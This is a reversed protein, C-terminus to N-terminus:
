RFSVPELFFFPFNVYFYVMFYLRTYSGPFAKRLTVGSAVDCFLPDSQM